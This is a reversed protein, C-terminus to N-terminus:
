TRSRRFLHIRPMPNPDAYLWPKPFLVRALKALKAFEDGVSDFVDVAAQMVVSMQVAPLQRVQEDTRDDDPHESRWWAVARQQPTLATM